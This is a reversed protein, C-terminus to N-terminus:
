FNPNHLHQSGTWEERPGLRIPQLLASQGVCIYAYDGYWKHTSGPSYMYLEDFGEGEVQVSNRRGRDILTFCCPASTYITSMKEALHKYNDREEGEIEVLRGGEKQGRGRSMPFLQGWFEKSLLDKNTPATTTTSPEPPPPIISFNSSIPPTNHLDSGELGVAYTAEPTSVNLHSILCGMVGIPSSTLNSIVIESSLSGQRLTVIHKVQVTNTANSSCSVLEVQILQQPDGKVSRLTWTNPSWSVGLGEIDSQCTFALSLGGRILTGVEEQEEEENKSRTRESVSTHLLELTGGHWMPAKYSTILGSPLMLSAVSGDALAMKVVCSDNIDEFTVGHGSFESELYDMNITPASISSANPSPFVRKPTHNCQICGALYSTTTAVTAASPHLLQTYSSHIHKGPSLPTINPFFPSSYVM